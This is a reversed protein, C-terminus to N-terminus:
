RQEELITAMKTLCQEMGVQSMRMMEGVPWNYETVTVKTKGNGLDEFVIANLLNQPFDAPMGLSKPDITNGDKDALNHIYEIREMPVINTYKWTSYMDQGGFEKPARMCVLSTGGVRFDIKAFPCTFMDPGWWQKIMEPEVWAKWVLKLPADFVRKIVLDQTTTAM